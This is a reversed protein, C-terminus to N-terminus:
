CNETDHKGRLLDQDMYFVSNDSVQSKLQHVSVVYVWGQTKRLDYCWRDLYNQGKLRKYQNLHTTRWLAM